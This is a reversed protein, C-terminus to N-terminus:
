CELQPRIASTNEVHLRDRETQYTDIALRTHGSDIQFEPPAEM